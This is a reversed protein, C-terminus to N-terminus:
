ENQCAQQLAAIDLKSMQLLAAGDGYRSIRCLSSNDFVSVYFNAAEEAQGDLWLFPTIKQM